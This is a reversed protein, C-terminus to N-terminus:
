FGAIVHIGPCGGSVSAGAWEVRKRSSREYKGGIWVYCPQNQSGQQQKQLQAPEIQALALLHVQLARTHSM